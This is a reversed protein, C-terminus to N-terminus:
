AGGAAPASTAGGHQRESEALLAAYIGGTRKALASPADFEAVAGADMVLVRNCDTITQIRHAVTLVTAAAFARRMAAQM